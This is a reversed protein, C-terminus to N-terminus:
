IHGQQSCKWPHVSLFVPMILIMGTGLFKCIVTKHGSVTQLPKKM